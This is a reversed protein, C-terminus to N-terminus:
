TPTLSGCCRSVIPVHTCGLGAHGPSASTNRETWTSSDGTLRRIRAAHVPQCAPGLLAQVTDHSIGRVAQHFIRRFLLGLQALAPAPYPSCGRTEVTQLPRRKWPECSQAAAIEPCQFEEEHLPALKQTRHQNWPCMNDNRRVRQHAVYNGPRQGACPELPPALQHPEDLRKSSPVPRLVGM